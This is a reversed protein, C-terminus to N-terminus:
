ACRPAGLAKAQAAARALQARGDLVERRVLAPHNRKAADAGRLLAAYAADKTALLEGFRAALREPPDLSRLAKAEQTGFYAVQKLAVGWEARAAHSIGSAVPNTSPFQVQNQLSSFHSCIRGAEAIFAARTDHQSSGCGSAAAAVAGLVLVFSARM